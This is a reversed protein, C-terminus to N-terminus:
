MVYKGNPLWNSFIFVYVFPRNHPCDIFEFGGKNYLILIWKYPISKVFHRMQLITHGWLYLEMTYITYSAIWVVRSVILLYDPTPQRQFLRM